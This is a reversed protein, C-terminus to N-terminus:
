WKKIVVNKVYQEGEIVVVETNNCGCLLCLSAISALLLAKKKRKM